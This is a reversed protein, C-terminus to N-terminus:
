LKTFLFILWIIVWVKSTLYDDLMKDANQLGGKNNGNDLLSKTIAQQGIVIIKLAKRMDEREAKSDGAVTELKEIRVEHNGLKEFDKDLKTKIEQISKEMSADKEKKQFHPTIFKDFMWEFVKLVAIASLLMGWGQAVTINEFMRKRVGKM